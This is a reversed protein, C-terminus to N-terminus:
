MKQKVTDQISKVVDTSNSKKIEIGINKVELNKVPAKEYSCM